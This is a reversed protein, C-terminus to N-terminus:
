AAFNKFETILDESPFVHTNRKDVVDKEVYLYGKFIADSIVTKVTNRSCYKPTLLEFFFEYSHKSNALCNLMILYHIHSQNFYFVIPFKIKLENFEDILKTANKIQM